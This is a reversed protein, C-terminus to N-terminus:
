SPMVSLTHGNCSAATSSAHDLPLLPLSLVFRTPAPGSVDLFVEGDHLQALRWAVPLGLGRGRGASRGSYFPDFLLEREAPTPGHGSDEVLLHLLDPQPLAVRIAAWGEAPTAEIANQLLCALAKGIQAPDAFLTIPTPLEPSLLQVQREAALVQQSTIAERILAEVDVAQKQPSRPRAFQMLDTLIRHVRRTQEVIKQLAHRQEPEAARALLYQAQGSIVALPNNIEHAAGASFEALATMKQRHLEETNGQSAAIVAQQLVDVDRHLREVALQQQGRRQQLALRLLDLLLPYAAPSEWRQDTEVTPTIEDCWTQVQAPELHWAQLINALNTGCHLGPNLGRQEALGIALQVTQFLDADAGLSRAVELPLALHGVITSLWAPLQWRQALRRALAAADLGFTRRQVDAAASSQVCKQFCEGATLPDVACLALWGLPALLATLWALDADCRRTKLALQHALRALYLCRQYIPQVAPSHWDVFGSAPPFKELYSCAAQLIAQEHFQHPLSQLEPATDASLGHRVLLLVCGPDARLQPWVAAAPTRALATLSAACPALWPLNLTAEGLAQVKM